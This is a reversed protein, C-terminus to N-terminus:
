HSAALHRARAILGEADLVLVVRGDSLITAGGIGPIAALRPHLDRLFMEQRRHLRDISVGIRSKGNSIVLVPVREGPGPGAAMGLLGAMPFIPLFGGRLVVGKQGNVSTLDAADVERVESVHRDPIALTEDGVGIMLATQLAASLPLRIAFTTGKGPETEIDVHGGLGAVTTLVVDMGVGRGSTETVQESTSFGPLFILREIESRDLWEAEEATILERRIATMLIRGHDLGRGDDGIEIVAESAQQSARLFFRATPPKGAAARDEAPEIGHDISNRVMHTLPSALQEVITKDIRVDRGEAEFRVSKGLSQATDLATRSLRTFLAELSVVRLDLTNEHMLQITMDMRRHMNGMARLSEALRDLPEMAERALHGPIRTLARRLAAVDNLIREDVEGKLGNAVVMLEGINGILRDVVVSNVRLVSHDPTRPARAEGPPGALAPASPSPPPLLAVEGETTLEALGRVCVSRPDLELLQRRMEDPPTDSVLLFEFGAAMGDFVTRNTVGRAAIQLWQIFLGAIEPRQELFVLVTYLRLGKGVADVLEDFQSPSVVERLEDRLPIGAISRAPVLETPDTELARRIGAALREGVRPAVDADNVEPVDLLTRFADLLVPTLTLAGREARRCIDVVLLFIGGLRPRGGQGLSRFSDQAADALRAAEPRDGTRLAKEAETLAAAFRTLDPPAVTASPPVSDRELGALEMVVAAQERIDHILAHLRERMGAEIPEELMAAAALANEQLLTFGMVEGGNAIIEAADRAQRRTEETDGGLMPLLLALNEELSEAFFLLMEGDEAASEAPMPAHTEAPLGSLTAYDRALADILGEPPPHDGHTVTASHVQEKLADVAQLLTQIMRDDLVARGDRVVGLVNEAMHAISEIGHLALARGLGKLSHFSRFLQAIADAALGDAARILLPEILFLHEEAEGGFERWIAESFGSM